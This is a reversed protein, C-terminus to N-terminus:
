RAQLGFALEDALACLAQLALLAHASNLGRRHGRALDPHVFNRLEKLGRAAHSLASSLLGCERLVALAEDVGYRMAPKPARQPFLRAYTRAAAEGLRACAQQGMGELVAGAMVTAAKYAGSHFSRWAEHADDQLAKAEAPHAAITALAQCLDPPASRAQQEALECWAQLQSLIAERQRSFDRGTLEALQAIDTRRPLPPGKRRRRSEVLVAIENIRALIAARDMGYHPSPLSVMLDLARRLPTSLTQPDSM